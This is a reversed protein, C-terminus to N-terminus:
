KNNRHENDRKNKLIKVIYKRLERSKFVHLTEDNKYNEDDIVSLCFSFFKKATKKIDEFFKRNVFNKIEGLINAFKEGAQFLMNFATQPLKSIKQMLNSLQLATNFLPNLAYNMIFKMGSQIEPSKINNIYQNLKEAINQLNKNFSLATLFQKDYFNQAAEKRQLAAKIELGAVYCKQYSWENNKHSHKQVSVSGMAAMNQKSCIPCSSQPLGHPCMGAKINPHIVLPSTM